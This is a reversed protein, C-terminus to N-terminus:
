TYLPPNTGPPTWQNPAIVTSRKQPRKQQDSHKSIQKWTQELTNLTM